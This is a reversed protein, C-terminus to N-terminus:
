RRIDRWSMRGTQEVATREIPSGTNPDIYGAKGGRGSYSIITEETGDRFQQYITTTGDDNQTEVKTYASNDSYTTITTTVLGDDSVTVNISVVVLGAGFAGDRPDASGPAREETKDGSDFDEPPDPVWDADDYCKKNPHHWFSTYEALVHSKFHEQKVRWGYTADPGNLEVHGYPTDSKILQFTIAGNFREGNKGPSDVVGESNVKNVCGTQTPILGARSTGGDNWWDKNKFADLPLNYILTDISTRTYRPLGAILDRANTESALNGYTKVSEYSSGGVSLFVAPNLYQNMVLVKFETTDDQLANVLNFDTLSANLMNVGTVDYKDDYEHVHKVKLYDASTVLKEYTTNCTLNQWNEVKKPDRNDKCVSGTIYDTLWTYGTSANDKCVKAEKDLDKAVDKSKKCILLSESTETPLTLLETATDGYYYVDFDFHGASVGPDPPPTPIGDEIPLDPHFVYLTSTQDEGQVLRPQSFIGAGLYKSVPIRSNSALDSDSMSGDENLDFIPGAPAGGSHFVLENIWNEGGVVTPNTSLFYYRGANYFPAEGVVREGPYLAVKWGKHTTWDPINGSVTRVGISGFSTTTLVQSLMQSNGGPAGDWVGYAYHTSTDNKDGSSLIQGTAFTVMVGGLPHPQVVPPSTIAQVPSTTFLKSVTGNALDFKWLNGDLDGAYAYDVVGDSEKDFLAPSSLGNPAGGSGTGTDIASILAGTNANIVFLVAKGNSSMYGNAFIVIHTGDALSGFRPAGYVYGLNSFSGTAEIEWMIKSAAEIESSATHSTVDLAFLGKGGAGLGGALITKQAGSMNFNAIRIPGDVFHTHVYPIKSLKALRSIVMSPVYAFREQGTDADFAHLMGDNAGVFVTQHTGNDWYVINSHLIDGLVHERKRLSLGNPEENVREGRVYNLVSESGLASKEAATLSSWRLPAGLTAIKRGTNFDTSELLEAASQLWPGNLGNIVGMNSVNHAFVNGSWTDKFFALRYFTENGSSVDSVSLDPPSLWGTPQSDPTFMNAAMATSSFLLFLGGMLPILSSAKRM